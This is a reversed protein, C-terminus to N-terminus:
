ETSKALAIRQEIPPHTHFLWLVPRSPNPEALNQAALRRMASVFAGPRGTVNLAFRDARRENIRSIANLVPTALLSLAGGALLMLPLGAVDAPSALGLRLWAADLAGAAAFLGCALLIAEVTLGKAIDRNVHHGIEHALIVEIEDDSYETLLTNSVLIRRTRGTGVLAANARRTKEGLGWEYVGLVPVGARASLSELRARLGDRELPKFKFFVPLLVVPAVMALGFTAVTFAAASVAWWSSPWWRLTLYAFETAPLALALAIALAKGHDGLWTGASETSLGYRRELVFGRYFALPFSLLEHLLALALVYYAIVAPGSAAQESGGVSRRIAVSGGTALLAVLLAASLAVSAVAARRKLRHYRSSRDENM